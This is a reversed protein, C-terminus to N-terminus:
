QLSSLCRIENERGKAGTVGDEKGDGENGGGQERGGKEEEERGEGEPTLYQCKNTENM